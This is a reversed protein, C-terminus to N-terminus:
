SEGSLRDLRTKLYEFQKGNYASQKKLIAIEKVLGDRTIADEQIKSQLALEYPSPSPDSKQLDKKLDEFQTNLQSKLSSISADIYDKLIKLSNEFSKFSEESKISVSALDDLTSYRDMIEKYKKFCEKTLNQHGSNIDGVKSAVSNCSNRVDQNLKEFEIQLSKFESATIARQKEWQLSLAILAESLNQQNQNTQHIFNSNNILVQAAKLVDDKKKSPPTSLSM